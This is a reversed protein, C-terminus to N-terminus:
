TQKKITLEVGSFLQELRMENHRLLEQLHTMQREVKLKPAKEKILAMVEYKNQDLLKQMAEANRQVKEEFQRQIHSTLADLYNQLSATTVIENSASLIAQKHVIDELNKLRRDVDDVVEKTEAYSVKLLMFDAIGDGRRLGKKLDM